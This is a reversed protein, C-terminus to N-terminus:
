GGHTTSSHRRTPPRSPSGSHPVRNGAASSAPITFAGRAADTTWDFETPKGAALFPGIPERALQLIVEGAGPRRVGHRSHRKRIRHFCSQQAYVIHEPGGLFEHMAAVIRKSRHFAWPSGSPSSRRSRLLGPIILSASRSRSWCACTPTFHSREPIPSPRHRLGSGFGTGGGHRGRAARWGRAEAHRRFAHRSVPAGTACCRPTAAAPGPPPGSM